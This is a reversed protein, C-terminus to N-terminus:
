QPPKFYETFKGQLRGWKRGFKQVWRRFEQRIEVEEESLGNSASGFFDLDTSENLATLSGAVVDMTRLNPPQLMEELSVHAVDKILRLYGHRQEVTGGFASSSSITEESQAPDQNIDNAAYSVLNCTM